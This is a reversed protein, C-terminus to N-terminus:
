HAVAFLEWEGPVGKLEHAGRQEFEIGSGVVLDKVTRSVLVEGGAALGGVRAGINVAMGGVDDGILECEGTHLGARVELGFPRVDEIISRACRIGRAPGDFTVLFGDGMTKIERGRYSSLQERVIEDHSEVLTRWRRDGVESARRTSDVIDTFLVTALVRNVEGARKAGTLFEEIVDLTQEADGVWPIHDDGPFEVYRAGPIARAMDRALQRPVARDGVRHLVLTPVRITELVPTVDISTIVQFRARMMAPSGVAREFAGFRRADGESTLSPAFVELGRGRGWSDLMETILRLTEPAESDGVLGLGSAFTGCLILASVRAPHTAATLASMPGGESYGVLAASNSGAADLVAILDEMDQELTPVGDLPDSVGQGRKDYLILRAFSALRRFFRVPAPLTWILDIQSLLGPVFVLDLPGDGVVQYGISLGGSSTYLTEPQEQMLTTLIDRRGAHESGAM